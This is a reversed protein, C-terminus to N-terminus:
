EYKLMTYDKFLTGFKRQLRRLIEYRPVDLAKAAEKYDKYVTTNNSIFDKVVIKSLPKLKRNAWFRRINEKATVWELNELRDDGPIGNIHDVQMDESNSIPKFTICLLRHRPFLKRKGNTYLVYNMYGQGTTNRPYIFKKSFLSYVQGTCTIKYEPIGPIDFLQVNNEISESYLM